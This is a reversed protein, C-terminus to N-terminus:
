KGKVIQISVNKMNLFVDDDDDDYELCVILFECIHRCM